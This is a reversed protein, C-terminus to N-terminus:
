FQELYLKVGNSTLITGAVELSVAQAFLELGAFAPNAPFAQPTSVTGLGGTLAIVTADPVVFQSCGPAIPLAVGGPIALFGIGYGVLVATTPVNTADLSFVNGLVPAASAALTLEPTGCGVGFTTARAPAQVSVAFAQIGQNSNMAYLVATNGSIAGWAVGGTGNANATLTGTTATASTLLLPSGPLSVDYVSVLSSNSDIVALVPLGGVVAYDMARQAAALGISADVTATSGAFSTLRANAGQTGILTDQDVFTLALRYDNSTTTTGAVNVFATSTNTGDVTGVVFCSNQAASAAVSGSGAFQVPNSGSGGTVAFSDGTRAIGSAANYAVTPPTVLGLAESDWKYVKFAATASTSLNCVYISGDDAVGPMNIAFTGGTIGTADLGGLDAGTIGDLIRVNNGGARSALVLNGTVPNYALGRETNGTTVYASSGPALWGNSGFTPLPAMTSQALLANACSLAALVGVSVFSTRAM